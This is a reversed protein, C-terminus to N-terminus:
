SAARGAPADAASLRLDIEFPRGWPFDVEAVRWRPDGGSLDALVEALRQQVWTAAQEGREGYLDVEDYGNGRAMLERRVVSQYGYDEVLRTVLFRQRANVDVTGTVEGLVGTVAAAVTSGIANGATNWGGYAVLAFLLQADRLGEVLQPDAGNPYRCDAVAVREGRDLAARVAAVTAAVLQEDTPRAPRPGYYDGGDPSPAHVVLRVDAHEVDVRAGAASIQRTVTTALPVNEFPAVRDLGGPEVCEVAFCVTHGHHLSLLRAVMVSAVEDAGPYVLLSDTPGLLTRWYEVIAQEASGASFQATDDATLLLTQVVGSHLMGIGALNVAHNRLRRLAFDRRLGDPIGADAVTDNQGGPQLQGLWARHARAGLAHLQVGHQTWYDPEESANNSNSARLFVNLAGIPLDPHRRHLDDLVSLRGLVEPLSDDSIRSPILGGYGLMDLSVVAGHAGASCAETLWAGLGRPDGGQRFRPLLEQPPLVVAAGGIAAIDRVMVTNVPRDDLPLLALDM